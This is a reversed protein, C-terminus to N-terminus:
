PRWATGGVYCSRGQWGMQKICGDEVLVPVSPPASTLVELRLRAAEDSEVDYEVFECGDWELQERLEATYPCSRGGFLELM